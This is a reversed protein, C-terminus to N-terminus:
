LYVCVCVCMVFVIFLLDVVDVSFLTSSILHAKKMPNIIAINMQFVNAIIGQKNYKM